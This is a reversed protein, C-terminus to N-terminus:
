RFTSQKFSSGSHCGAAASLLEPEFTWNDELKCTTSDKKFVTKQYKGDRDTNETSDPAKSGDELFRKLQQLDKVPKRPLSCAIISQKLALLSLPWPSTSAPTVKIQYIQKPVLNLCFLAM